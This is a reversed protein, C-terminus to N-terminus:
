RLADAAEKILTELERIREVYAAAKELELGCVRCTALQASRILMQRRAEALAELAAELNAIKVTTM